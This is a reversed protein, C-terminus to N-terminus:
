GGRRGVGCDAAAMAVTRTETRELSRGLCGGHLVAYHVLPPVDADLAGTVHSGVRDCLAGLLACAQIGAPLCPLHLLCDRYNDPDGVAAGVVDIDGHNRVM